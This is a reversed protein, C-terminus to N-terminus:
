FAGTTYMSIVVYIKRQDDVRVPHAASDNIKARKAGIEEKAEEGHVANKM